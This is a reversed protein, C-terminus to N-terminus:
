AVKQMPRIQPLPMPHGQAEIHVLVDEVVDCLERYLTVPNEGHIGTILDPCKGIYVQDEESWEIWKHYKDSEKM